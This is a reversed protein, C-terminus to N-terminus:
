QYDLLIYCKAPNFTMEMDKGLKKALKICDERAEIALCQWFAKPFVNQYMM